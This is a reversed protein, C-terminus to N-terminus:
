IVGMTETVSTIKDVSSSNNKKKYGNGPFTYKFEAKWVAHWM